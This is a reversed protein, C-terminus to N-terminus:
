QICWAILRAVLYGFTLAMACRTFLDLRATM